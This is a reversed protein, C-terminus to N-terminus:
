GDRPPPCLNLPCPFEQFIIEKQLLYGLTLLVLLTVVLGGYFAWHKV